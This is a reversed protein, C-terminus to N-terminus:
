ATHGPTERGGPAGDIPGGLGPESLLRPARTQSPVEEWGLLRHVPTGVPALDELTGHALLRARWRHVRVDGVDLVRCARAQSWGGDIADDILKLLREKDAGALRAPVPAAPNLGM